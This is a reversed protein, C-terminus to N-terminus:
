RNTLHICMETDIKSDSKKRLVLYKSKVKAKLKNKLSLKTDWKGVTDNLGGKAPSMFIRININNAM